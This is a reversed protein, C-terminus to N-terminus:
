QRQSRRFWKDRLPHFIGENKWLAHCHNASEVSPVSFPSCTRFLFGALLREGARENKGKRERDGAGRNGTGRGEDGTM